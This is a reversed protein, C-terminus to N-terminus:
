AVIVDTLSTLRHQCTLSADPARTVGIVCMGAAAAAQTGVASDDFAACVTPDVGVAGAAARYLDPAPKGFAVDDITRVAAVHGALGATGLMMEVDARRGNSAIALPVRGALAAVLAGAGPLMPVGAALRKSYEADLEARVNGVGFDAGARGTAQMSAVLIEAAAPADLGTFLTRDGAPLGHGACWADLMDLWVTESDFLLGDCDFVVADASVSAAGSTTTLNLTVSM